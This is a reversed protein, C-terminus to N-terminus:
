GAKIKAANNGMQVPVRITLRTGEGPISDIEVRGGHLAARQQINRLGLGSNESLAQLDFGKGDDVITVELHKDLRQANIHINRADSHRVANSLAENVMQCIAEFTAPTFRPTENPANLHIKLTDPTHLRKVVEDLREYITKQAQDSSQLNMIYRRIDDIVDNLNGLVGTMASEQANGSLRMLDLHMGIAYLSQIVGDHLEM